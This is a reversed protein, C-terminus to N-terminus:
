SIRRTGDSCVLDVEISRAASLWNDYKDINDWQALTGNYTVTKLNRCRSFVSNEIYDLTSPLSVTELETCSSFARVKLEQVGEPIVLHVFDTASFAHAEISRINSPIVFDAISHVCAKLFNIPVIHMYELPNIGAKLFAETLESTHHLRIETPVNKYVYYFDCDNIADINQEIFQKVEPTM